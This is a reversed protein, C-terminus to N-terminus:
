CIEREREREREIQIISGSLQTLSILPRPEVMKREILDAPDVQDVYEIDEIERERGREEIYKM